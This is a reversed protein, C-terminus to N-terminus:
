KGSRKAAKKARKAYDASRKEADAVRAACADSIEQYHPVDVAMDPDQRVLKLDRNALRVSRRLEEAEAAFQDTRSQLWEPDDVFALAEPDWRQGATPTVGDPLAVLPAAAGAEALEAHSWMEAHTFHTGKVFTHSEPDESVLVNMVLNKPNLQAYRM